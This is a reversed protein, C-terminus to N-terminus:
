DRARPRPLPPRQHHLPALARAGVLQVLRGRHLRLLGWLASARSERQKGPPYGHVVVTSRAPLASSRASSSVTAGAGPAGTALPGPRLEAGDADCVADPAGPHHRTAGKPRRGARRLATAVHRRRIRVRLIPVGGSSSEPVTEVAGPRTGLRHQLGRRGGGVDQRDAPRPPRM